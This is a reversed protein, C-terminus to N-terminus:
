NRLQLLDVIQNFQPGAAAAQARAGFVLNFTSCFGVYKQWIESLVKGNISHTELDRNQNRWNSKWLLM